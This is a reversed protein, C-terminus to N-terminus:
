SLLIRGLLIICLLYKKNNKERLVNVKQKLM